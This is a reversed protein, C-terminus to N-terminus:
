DWKSITSPPSSKSVALTIGVDSDAAMPNHVLFINKARIGESVADHEVDAHITGRQTTITLKGPNKTLSYHDKDPRIIEWNL